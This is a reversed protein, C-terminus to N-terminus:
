LSKIHSKAKDNLQKIVKDDYVVSDLVDIGTMVMGLGGVKAAKLGYGVVLESITEATTDVAAEKLIEGTSSSDSKLSAKAVNMGFSFMLGKAGIYCKVARHENEFVSGLKDFGYEGAKQLLDLATSLRSNLEQETEPSLQQTATYEEAAKEIIQKFAQEQEVSDFHLDSESVVVPKEEKHEASPLPVDLNFHISDDKKIKYGSTEDTCIRGKISGVDMQTGQKGHIVSQQKAKFNIHDVSVTSVPLRSQNSHGTGELDHFNGSFGIGSKKHRDHVSESIVEKATFNNQGDATIVGGKSHYQGVTFRNNEDHNIGQEVHIGSVQNVKRSSESGVYFSAEGSTSASVQKTSSRSVDQLTEIELKEIHGSISGAKINAGKLVAKEVEGLDLHGGASIESNVHSRTEQKQKSYNVGVDAVQGTATVGVKGGRNEHRYKSQLEAATAIIEPTRIQMDQKARVQVGNELRIGEGAELIVNNRDIGGSGLTQFQHTTKSQNFNLSITPNFGEPSGLGTRSLLEDTLNESRTLNYVNLGLNSANVGAEVATESEALQSGKSLTPAVSLLAAKAGQKSKLAEIPDIGFVSVSVSQSKDTTKHDLTDRGLLIRKGARMELDGGGTFVAGLAIIDKESHIITKGNDVFLTPTASKIIEKHSNKYLGWLYKESKYTKDQTKLSQLSVTDKSYVHTGGASSFETAISDVTGSSSRITTRGQNSRVVPQFINTHTKVEHEKKGYFTKHTKDKSIYTHHKAKIEVGQDGQIEIDGESLFHSAECKVKGKAQVLLGLGQTSEGSGGVISASDNKVITDYKGKYSHQHSVNVIDGDAVLQAYDSAHIEGGRNEINKGTEISIIGSTLKGRDNYFTGKAQLKTLQDTQINQNTRIDAASDVWLSRGSVTSSLNVDGETSRLGLTHKNDYGTNLNVSKGTVIVDCNRQIKDNLNVPASTTVDLSKSAQYHSYQGSGAAIQSINDLKEVDLVGHTIQASGSLDATDSKLYFVNEKSAGAPEIDIVGHHSYKETEIFCKDQHNLHSSDDFNKAQFGSDKVYETATSSFQINEEKM